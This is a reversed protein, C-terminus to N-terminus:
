SVERPYSWLKTVLWEEVQSDATLSHGRVSTMLAIFNKTLSLMRESDSRASRMLSFLQSLYIITRALRIDILTDATRASANQMKGVGM